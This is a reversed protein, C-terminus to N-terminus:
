LQAFEGPADLGTADATEQAFTSQRLPIEKVLWALAFALVAFPLAVEFV